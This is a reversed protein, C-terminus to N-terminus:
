FIIESKQFSWLKDLLIKISKWYDTKIIIIWLVPFTVRENLIELLWWHLENWLISAISSLDNVVITNKVEIKRKQHNWLGCWMM